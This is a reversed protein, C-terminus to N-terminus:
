GAGPRLLSRPFRHRGPGVAMIEDDGAAPLKQTRHQPHASELFPDEPERGRSPEGAMEMDIDALLRGPGRDDGRKLRSVPKGARVAIVTVDNRAAGIGRRRERLNEPTRATEVGTATARKMEAVRRKAEDRCRRHDASADRERDTSTIGAPLGACARNGRGEEAIPSEFLAHTVLSQIDCGQHVQRNQEDALVVADLRPARRAATKGTQNVGAAGIQQLNWLREADLRHADVPGVDVRDFDAAVAAIALHRSPWPGTKMSHTVLRHAPLLGSHGIRTVPSVSM